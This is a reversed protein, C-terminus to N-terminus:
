KLLIFSDVGLQLENSLEYINKSKPQWNIRAATIHDMKLIMEPNHNFVALVDEVNNKSNLCLLMGQERKNLMFKQLFKHNDTVKIGSSGAEACIGQWLTNDCDLVIVKRPPSTFAVFKRIIMTGLAIYFEDTYPIHSFKNSFDNYPQKVPYHTLLEATLIPYVNIILKIKSITWSELEIFKKSIDSSHRDSFPCICVIFPIKNKKTASTLADVFLELNSRLKECKSDTHEHWDEFRILIINMRNQNSYLNSDLDILQHMVQNYPTFEINLGLDIKNLWFLLSPKIPESIFTSTIVLKSMVM